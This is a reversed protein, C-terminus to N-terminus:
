RRAPVAPFFRPDTLARDLLLTAAGIASTRAGLESVVLRSVEVSSILTRAHVVQRMPELLREGLRALGGGLIVRAPNVLNLLGAIVTGLDEAASAVVELALTDGALAADELDALSFDRGALVSDPHTAILDRAQQKLAPAGVRTVLCGRLGCSCRAGEPDISVHGMEGAMGASGRYIQGNIFFGAGIGSALKVYVFDDIGRGAGWWREALAGLNADNDVVVPVRYRRRLRTGVKVGRWAPLVVENLVDPNAPDVPSPVSIGVGMLRARKGGWTALAKATLADVQDLAGKPDDRVPHRVQEWALVRGRLDTVVAAVHTAGLDVGLIVAAADDFELVIPRRGGRSKGAGM